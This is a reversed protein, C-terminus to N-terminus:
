WVGPILRPRGSSYVAYRDGLGTRLAAEEVAIRRVLGIAPLVVLAAASAVDGLAVGFGLFLVLLGLYSPHRVIRYPGGTVVRQESRVQVLTTFSRGLTVVAWLRLLMGAWAVAIGAILWIVPDPLPLAHRFAFLFALGFGAVITVLLWFFSGRDQGGRWAGSRLDRFTLVREGIVWVLLTVWYPAATGPSGNLDLM